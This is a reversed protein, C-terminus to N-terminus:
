KVVSNTVWVICRWINMSLLYHIPISTSILTQLTITLYGPISPVSSSCSVGQDTYNTHRGSTRVLGSEFILWFCPGTQKTLPYQLWSRSITQLIQFSLQHWFNNVFHFRMSSLLSIIFFAGGPGPFTQVSCTAYLLRAGTIM